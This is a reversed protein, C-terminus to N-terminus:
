KFCCFIKVKEKNNLYKVESYDYKNKHILKSKKIFWDKNSIVETCYPCSRELFIPKRFFLNGCTKCYIIVDKKEGHYDSCVVFDDHYLKCREEITGKSEINNQLFTNTIKKAINKDKSPITVGYHLMLTSLQKEKVEKIQSTSKVGYREINTKEQKEKIKNSKTHHEVGYREMDTLKTKEVQPLNVYDIINKVTEPPYLMGNSKIGNLLLRKPLDCPRLYNKGIEKGIMGITKYGQELLKEKEEKTM